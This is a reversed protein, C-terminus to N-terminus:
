HKIVRVLVSEQDEFAGTFQDVNRIHGLDYIVFLTNGYESGYALIDDNIEAILEKEREQRKCLKVELVLDLRQLSFDPVYKKSSYDISPGERVYPVDAAILLTEVADQIEKEREPVTRIVKRLKHEILGLVKMIRSAEPATDKGDYVGDIGSRELDDRAALLMGRASELKRLFAAHHTRDVAAQPDMLDGLRNPGGVIFSGAEYWEIRAFSLYFRSNQGFVQELFQLVNMGWRTHNASHRREQKLGDIKGVLRDLAEVASETTWHTM